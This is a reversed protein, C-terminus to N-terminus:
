DADYGNPYKKQWNWTDSMMDELSLRAEWGLLNKAKTADAWFEPLDGERRSVFQYPIEQGTVKVFAEVIELVSIAAGTGLNFAEVRDIEQNKLLWNLANLHGNALDVVHLYDRKCTGDETPYDNGYINLQDRKGVAVQSLFPLLNNPVDKPDEGILGSPHAGIPNFYRLSVAHLRSNAKVADQLMREVMVKSAGYPSSPSGLQMTESYPIGAEEGYVTASSSFIFNNVKHKAMAQLLNLSGQVNNKYYDLPKKISEGVAKLASFHIVAQFDNETFVEDLSDPNCVDGKFFNIKRNTLKEVRSLAETSGNCLNDFVTIDYGSELLSVCTHSGIYGAGGTILIM